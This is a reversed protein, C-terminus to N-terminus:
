SVLLACIAAIHVFCQLTTTFHLSTFHLGHPTHQTTNHETTTRRSTHLSGFYALCWEGRRRQSPPWVEYMTLQVKTARMLCFAALLQWEGNLNCYNPDPNPQEIMTQRTDALAV